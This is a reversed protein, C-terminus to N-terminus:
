AFSLKAAANKWMIKDVTEQSHGRELLAQALKPLAAITELGPTPTGGDFDGGLCLTDRAESCLRLLHEIHEIVAIIDETGGVHKHYLCLGVLGGSKAMVIFHLDRLNRTHPNVSYACSHSAVVTRGGAAALVDDAMRESAHSIDPIIGLKFCRELVKHGFDSIGIDEPDDHASGIM